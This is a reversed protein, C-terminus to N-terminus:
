QDAERNEKWEKITCAVNSQHEKFVWSSLWGDLYEQVEELPKPLWNAGTKYFLGWMFRTRNDGGNAKNINSIVIGKKRLCIEKFNNQDWILNGMIKQNNKSM